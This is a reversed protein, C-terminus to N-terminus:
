LDTRNVREAVRGGVNGTARNPSLGRLGDIEHILKGFGDLDIGDGFHGPREDDRAKWSLELNPWCRLLFGAYSKLIATPVGSLRYESILRVGPEMRELTEHSSVAPDDDGPPSVDLHIFQLKRRKAFQLLDWPTAPQFPICLRILSPWLRHLASCDAWGALNLCRLELRELELPFIPALDEVRVPIAVWDTTFSAILVRLQRASAGILAIISAVSAPSTERSYADNTALQLETLGNLLMPCRSFLQQLDGCSAGSVKLEKLSPFADEGLGSCEGLDRWPGGQWQEICLTRLRPLGGIQGFPVSGLSQPSLRLHDLLAFGVLSAAQKQAADGSQSTRLDLHTLPSKLELASQLILAAHEPELGLARPGESTLRTTCPGLLLKIMVYYARSDPQSWEPVTLDITHVRPVIPARDLLKELGSWNRQCGHPWVELTRVFGAYLDFRSWRAPGIEEPHPIPATMEDWRLSRTWFGSAHAYEDDVLLSFLPDVDGLDRWLRSAAINFWRRNVTLTSPLDEWTLNSLVLGLLENTGLFRTTM